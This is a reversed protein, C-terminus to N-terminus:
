RGLHRKLFEFTGVGRIQHGGNFFEISTRDGIGAEDYYRRVKAYEYAVREDVSVPDRHGREVMFPRPAILMALEAYNYTNGSDFELLEYEQTFMYSVASDVTVIKWIWDNFDASCMSLAYGDLLASVRMATKGGYSLGYFGIRKADVYPQEALWALIRENQAIIFSYISLKLPNAKRQLQRFDNAGIYPLQPAFVIYRRSALKSAFENYVRKEKENEPSILDDPRGELGHQCVVVPRREGPKLDKPVLLV